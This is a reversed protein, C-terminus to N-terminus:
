SVQPLEALALSMSLMPSKKLFLPPAATFAINPLLTLASQHPDNHDKRPVQPHVTSKPTAVVAKALVAATPAIHPPAAEPEPVSNPATVLVSAKGWVRTGGRTGKGNGRSTGVGISPQVVMIISNGDHYGPPADGSVAIRISPPSSLPPHTQYLEMEDNSSSFSTELIDRLGRVCPTDRRCWMQCSFRLAADIERVLRRELKEIGTADQDQLLFRAPSRLFADKLRGAHRVRAEALLRGDDTLLINDVEASMGGECFAKMLSTRWANANNNDGQAIPTTTHAVLAASPDNSSPKHVCSMSNSLVRSLEEMAQRSPLNHDLLGAAPGASLNPPPISTVLRPLKRMDRSEALREQAVPILRPSRVDRPPAISFNCMALDMRFGVPSVSNLRPMIPSELELSNPAIVDFVWFPSALTQSIIFNALMGHLLVRATWAEDNAPSTLLEGPLQGTESLRVFHKVGECLETRQLPHLGSQVRSPDRHAFDGAWERWINAKAALWSSIASDGLATEKPRDLAIRVFEEEQRALRSELDKIRAEFVRERNLLEEKWQHRRTDHRKQVSALRRALEQNDNLLDRETRQLAAVRQHLSRNEKALDDGLDIPTMSRLFRDIKDNLARTGPSLDRRQLSRSRSEAPLKNPTPTSSRASGRGGQQGKSSAGSRSRSRSYAQFVNETLVAASPTIDRDGDGYEAAVSSPTEPPGVPLGSIPHSAPLLPADPESDAVPEPSCTYNRLPLDSSQTTTSSGTLAAMSPNLSRPPPSRAM